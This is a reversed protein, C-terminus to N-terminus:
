RVKSLALSKAREIINCAGDLTRSAAVIGHGRWIILTEPAAQSGTAISLDRSGPPLQPVSRIWGPLPDIRELFPLLAGIHCHVVASTPLGLKSHVRLHSELETSPPGVGKALRIHGIGIAYIGVNRHPDQAIESFHSGTRTILLSAGEIEPRRESLPFTEAGGGIPDVRMLVSINGFFSEGFGMEYLHSATRSIERLTPDITRDIREPM